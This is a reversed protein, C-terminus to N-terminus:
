ALPPPQTPADPRRTEVRLPLENNARRADGSSIRGTPAGRSRAKPAQQPTWEIQAIPDEGSASEEVASSATPPQAPAARDDRMGGVSATRAAQM